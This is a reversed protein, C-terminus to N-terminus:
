AAKVSGVFEVEARSAIENYALVSIGHIYKDVLRRMPLRLQTSCILVAQYGKSLASDL